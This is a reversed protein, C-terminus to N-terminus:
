HSQNHVRLYSAKLLDLKTEIYFACGMEMGYLPPSRDENLLNQLNGYRFIALGKLSEFFPHYSQRGNLERNGKEDILRSTKFDYRYIGEFTVPINCPLPHFPDLIEPNRLSFILCPHHYVNRIALVSRENRESAYTIAM